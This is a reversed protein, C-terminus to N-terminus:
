RGTAGPDADQEDDASPLPPGDGRLLDMLRLLRTVPDWDGEPSRDAPLLPVARYPRDAPRSPM